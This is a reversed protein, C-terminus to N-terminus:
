GIKKIEIISWKNVPCKSNTLSAKASVICGCKRCQNTPKFYFECSHCVALRDEKVEPSVIAAKAAERVSLVQNKLKDLFHSM